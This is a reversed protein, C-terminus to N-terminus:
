KGAKTLLAKSDERIKKALEFAIRKTQLDEAKRSVEGTNAGLGWEVTTSVQTSYDGITDTSKTVSAQVNHTGTM